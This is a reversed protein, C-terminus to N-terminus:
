KIPQAPMQNSHKRSKWLEITAGTGLGILYGTLHDINYISDQFLLGGLIALIGFLLVNRWRGREGILLIGLCVLSATSAGVDPTLLPGHVYEINANGLPWLVM